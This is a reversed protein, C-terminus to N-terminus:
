EYEDDEDDDEDGEGGVSAAAQPAPLVADAGEERHQRRAPLGQIAKQLDPLAELNERRDGDVALLVVGAERVAELEPGQVQPSIPLM